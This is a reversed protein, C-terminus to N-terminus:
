DYHHGVSAASNFALLCSFGDLLVGVGVAVVAGFSCAGLSFGLNNASEM